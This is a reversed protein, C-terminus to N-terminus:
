RLMGSLLDVLQDIHAVASSDGNNLIIRRLNSM